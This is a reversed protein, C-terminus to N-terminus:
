LEEHAGQAQAVKERAKGVSKLAAEVAAAAEAEARDSQHRSGQHKSAGTVHANEQGGHGMITDAVDGIKQKLKDLTSGDHQQQQAAAAAKDAAAKSSGTVTNTVDNMAQKVREYM